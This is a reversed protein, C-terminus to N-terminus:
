NYYKREECIFCFTARSPHTTWGYKHPHFWVAVCSDTPATWHPEEPRWNKYPMKVGDGNRLKWVFAHHIHHGHGYEYKSLGATWLLLGTRGYCRKLNVADSELDCLASNITYHTIMTIRDLWM